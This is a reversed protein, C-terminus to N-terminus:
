AVATRHPGRGHQQAVGGGTGETGCFDSEPQGIHAEFFGFGVGVDGTFFDGHWQGCASIFAAVGVCVASSVRGVAARSSAPFAATRGISNTGYRDKVGAVGGSGDGCKV